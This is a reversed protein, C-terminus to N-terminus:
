LWNHGDGVHGLPLVSAQLWPEDASGHCQDEAGEERNPEWRDERRRRPTREGRSRRRRRECSEEEADAERGNRGENEPGTAERPTRQECSDEEQDVGEESEEENELGREEQSSRGLEEERPGRRGRLATGKLTWDERRGTPAQGIVLATVGRASLSAGDAMALGPVGDAMALGPVGSCYGEGLLPREPWEPDACRSLYDANTQLRGAGHITQFSFPQLALFWRLVRANSDKNRSLWVLPAHDTILTFSRGLLYYQLAELAWKIALCEKEITAYHLERPLLKRSIYVVPRFVGSMVEQSLVAGLGHGSADTQLTFPKLFDPCILVPDQCLINKLADFRQQQLPSWSGADVSRKKRLLHTLPYALEFFHLIFRRYYGVLGLFSRIEKKTMPAPLDRIAKVKDVQPRITGEQIQYGLYQITKTAVVCKAPNITLGTARISRFVAQLHKLHTEWSPSYIVIDDLYATAYGSHPRLMHDM